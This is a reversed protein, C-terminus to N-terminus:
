IKLLRMLFEQLFPILPLIFLIKTEFKKKYKVLKQDSLTKIVPLYDMLEYIDMKLKKSIENLNCPNSNLGQTFIVSFFVADTYNVNLYDAIKVLCPLTNLTLYEFNINEDKLLTDVEKLSQIIKNKKEM